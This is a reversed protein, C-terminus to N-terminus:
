ANKQRDRLEKFREMDELVKLPSVQRKERDFLLFAGDRTDIRLELYKYQSRYFWLEPFSQVKAVFSAADDLWGIALPERDVDTVTNDAM